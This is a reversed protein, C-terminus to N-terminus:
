EKKDVLFANGTEKDMLIGEVKYQKGPILNEYSVIDEIVVKDGHISSEAAKTGVNPYYVTQDDDEIDTHSGVEKDKNYLKEFVVITKGVLDGKTITFTLEISGNAKEATFKKEAHVENGDKTLFPLGTEKDMLTGKVTYER